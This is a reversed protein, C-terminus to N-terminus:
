NDEDKNMKLTVRAANLVLVATGKDVSVLRFGDMESGVPLYQEGIIAAGGKGILVVAKLEHSRAFGRARVEDSSMAEVQESQKRPQLEDLWSQSPCFADRASTPVLQHTHRLNDLRTALSDAVLMATDNTKVKAVDSLSGAASVPQSVTAAGAQSPGTPGYGILRDAALAAIGTGLVAILVKRKKTMM